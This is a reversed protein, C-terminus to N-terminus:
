RRRGWLWGLFSPQPPRPPALISRIARAEREVQRFEEWLRGMTAGGPPAGGPLEALSGPWGQWVWGASPLDSIRPQWVREGLRQILALLRHQGEVVKGRLTGQDKHFATTAGRSTTSGSSWGSSREM